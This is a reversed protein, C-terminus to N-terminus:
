VFDGFTESLCHMRSEERISGIQLAIQALTAVAIAGSVDIVFVRSLYDIWGLVILKAAGLKAHGAMGVILEVTVGGVPEGSVARTIM